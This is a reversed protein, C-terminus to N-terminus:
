RQTAGPQAAAKTGKRPQGKKPKSAAKASSSAGSQQLQANLASIQAQQEALKRDREALQATAQRTADNAEKLRAEYDQMQQGKGQRVLDAAARKIEEVQKDQPRDRLDGLGLATAISQLREEEKLVIKEVSLKETSSSGGFQVGAMAGGGTGAAAGVSVGGGAGVNLQAMLRAVRENVQRAHRAAFLAQAGLTAVLKPDRPTAAIRKKADDFVRQAEAFTQPAQQEAHQKRSDANIVDAEHLAGEQVAHVELHQLAALLAEKDKDINGQQEREVKEILRSFDAMTKDYEKPLLKATDLADIRAKVELEQGFRYKVIEMVSRGKDLIADGRAANQALAAKPQNGLQNKAESLVGSAEKFYNPALFPMGAAKADNVHKELTAVVDIDTMEGYKAVTAASPQIHNSVPAACGALLVSLTLGIPLIRNIYM